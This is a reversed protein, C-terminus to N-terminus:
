STTVTFFKRMAFTTTIAIKNNMKLNNNGSVIANKPLVSTKMTLLKPNGNSEPVINTASSKM